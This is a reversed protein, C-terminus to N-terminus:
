IRKVIQEKAEPPQLAADPVYIHVGRTPCLFMGRDTSIVRQIAQWESESQSFPGSMYIRDDEFRIEVDQM